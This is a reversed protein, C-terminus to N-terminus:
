CINRLFIHSGDEPYFPLVLMFYTALLSWVGKYGPLYFDGFLNLGVILATNGISMCKDYFEGNGSINRM